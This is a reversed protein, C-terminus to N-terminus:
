PTATANATAPVGTGSGVVVVVTLADGFLTGQDDTMRWTGQVLGTQNTPAAMKVTIEVKAGPNVASPVVFPSGGMAVGGVLVLKFGPRWACTGSNQVQWTKTFVQAPTVITYDPITVDHLYKLRYCSPTPSVSGTSATSATAATEAPEPTDTPTVTPLAAATGTLGIAFTAVARTQVLASDITPAPVPQGQSQVSLVVILLLALLAVVSIAARTTDRWM